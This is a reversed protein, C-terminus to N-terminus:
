RLLDERAIRDARRLSFTFVSGERESSEVGVTGWHAEVIERVIALGLGAGSGAEQGPLRFFKEFVKDRYEEPIGKGTDSVSFFVRQDDAAASVTVIGGPDTYRLANTLLNSFVLGVQTSDAWVEPLDGPLEARLTIGRDHAALTFVDVADLVITNPYIKEFRMVGKGAEIRGLDLLNGLIGHLRESDERAALLLEVQKESLPGITEELLLHIAMRISTLPTKLQHSVTSLLGKKMEDQHRLQTVDKLVMVVGTPFGEYDIIPVAEPRFFREEGNVFRQLVAKEADATVVRGSKLAFQFMENMLPVDIQELRTNAKMSFGDRALATSVEVQGELDVVAIADPLSDFARQTARQIRILRAQDSRRFERLSAAMDNFSKSLHGIEDRSGAQVVLDLNGRGIEDASQILRNIPHLIWRGTYYFFAIAIATGALLLVYMQRRAAAASRRAHDNADSMNQQNMRLIEEANDKMRGFLPLLESFYTRRRLSLPLDTDEVTKLLARYERFLEQLGVAREGEGPLTINSLEVQLARDFAATNRDILDKGQGVDGLLTFLIGSDIRELAEKMEQCAVVSRYNERLIVDISEGLKTVQLVGQVGIVSLIVLLGAFGLSLKQRLGLM